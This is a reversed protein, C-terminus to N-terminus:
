GAARTDQTLTALPERMRELDEKLLDLSADTRQRRQMSLGELQPLIEGLKSLLRLAQDVQQLQQAADSQPRLIPDFRKRLEGLPRGDEFVASRLEDIVNSSGLRVGGREAVDNAAHDVARAFYDISQYSPIARVVGDRDLVDPAHHKLTSYSVTLKDVTAAKLQLEGQCYRHFDDYGWARYEGSARVRVLAEALEIWSRKFTQARRVVDLRSPDDGHRELFQGIADLKKKPGSVAGISLV